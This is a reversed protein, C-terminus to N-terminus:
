IEKLHALFKELEDETNYFHPSIRIGNMRASVVVGRKRLKEVKEKPKSAKFNVIGSRNSPDESTQLTFGEEKLRGILYGTLKMIRNEIKEMGYELILRLAATAGVYSLLSPTGIEFRSATESLVLQTNNWLDATEFIEHKVSAWGVFIPEMKEVLDKKLYLFGAGCPGLLWKYCSTALFDVKQHKVDICTAGASQCADVVLFAGHEHSIEAIAKLDNKFGNCYEVHSIIVAVTDDNVAKEFDELRLRGKNNKVYRIELDSKMKIRLWPYVVSPFELDTTVVNSNRPYELLNAVISLGTSTNPVLAIEDSRANILQSFLTRASDINFEEEGGLTRHKLYKQIAEAVPICLPSIGAHNLFIREKVSPFHERIKQINSM